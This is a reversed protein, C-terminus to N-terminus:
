ESSIIRDVVLQRFEPSLSAFYASFGTVRVVLDPFKRPDKNAEMIKAKDLVNLNIQTGGMNFHGKILAKVNNLGSEDRGLGPDLDMQMPATNGYGPQVKAVAVALATAAGDKRFGPDPNAGHSIPDGDRRGNPTAPINKGMSIMSAWSFLGPIMNRGAPTPREKVMETFIQAIREAYDDAPTGGNGFRPTRRMLSRLREGDAGEWNKRLCTDLEKWNTMESKEIWTEVAALSDATTALGAGDVCLNYYDVGGATADLGREIPGYCLLDLVLEPSVEHMHELHFDLGEAITDIAIRLHRSFLEWLIKTDPTDETEFMERWAATFVAAFNVKVMDNMTYEVGPLASWHCGSYARQRALAQTYNNRTFGEVTNEIGLFKPIGTKDSFLIEVGRELLQDSVNKGVCIGINAPIRLQHAAELILLSVKSTTDEGDPDLGGLQIYATDRVLLCALHFTAEDDTMVGRSKDQDYYPELLVDLRGLAGSGNFMRASILYWLIWQCAERFTQPPETVLKSNMDSIEQLNMNLLPDLENLAMKGAEIAHRSIWNQMGEVVDLLGAYFEDREPLNIKRYKLIKQKLGDWGLELGIQLDPCFHQAGGIGSNLQYLKQREELHAFSIDPNWQPKRYSLFNVMTAGALSSVPDIYVPHNELLKRYAKGVAAAGFFGGSPHNSEMEIGELVVDVIPVGSGSITKVVKRKEPPPLVLAWDDYDMSGILDWKEQTQEMKRLRLREIRDQYSLLDTKSLLEM